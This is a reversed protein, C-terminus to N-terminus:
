LKTNQEKPPAAPIMAELWEKEQASKWEPLVKQACNTWYGQGDIARIGLSKLNGVAQARLAGEVAPAVNKHIWDSLADHWMADYVVPINGVVSLSIPYLYIREMPVSKTNNLYRDFDSQELGETPLMPANTGLPLHETYMSIDSCEWQVQMSELNLSQAISNELVVHVPFNLADKKVNFASELREELGEWDAPASGIWGIWEYGQMTIEEKQASKMHVYLAFVIVDLYTDHPYSTKM